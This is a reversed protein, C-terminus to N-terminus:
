KLFRIERNRRKYQKTHNFRWVKILARKCVWVYSQRLKLGSQRAQIGLQVLATYLLQADTPFRIVKEQVTTDITVAEM